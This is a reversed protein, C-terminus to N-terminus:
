MTVLVRVSSGIMEDVHPDSLRVRFKITPLRHVVLVMVRQTPMMAAEDVRGFLPSRLVVNM